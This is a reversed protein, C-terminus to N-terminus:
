RLTVVRFGFPNNNIHAVIEESSHLIHHKTTPHIVLTVSNEDISLTEPDIIKGCFLRVGEVCREKIIKERSVFNTFKKFYNSINFSM